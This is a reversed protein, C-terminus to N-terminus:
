VVNIKTNMIQVPYSLMNFCYSIDIVVAFLIAKGVVEKQM